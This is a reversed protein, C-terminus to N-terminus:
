DNFSYISIKGEKKAAEIVKAWAADEPSLKPTAAPTSLAAPTPIAPTQTLVQPTKPACAIAILLTALFPTVLIMILKKTM